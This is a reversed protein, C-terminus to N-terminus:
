HVVQLLQNVHFSQRSDRSVHVDTQVLMGVTEEVCGETINSKLLKHSPGSVSSTAPNVMGVYTIRMSQQGTELQSGVCGVITIVIAKAHAHRWLNQIWWLLYKTLTSGQLAGNSAITVLSPKCQWPSLNLSYHVTNPSQHQMTAAPRIPCAHIKKFVLRDQSDWHIWSRVHKIFPRM